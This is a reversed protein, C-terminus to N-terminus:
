RGSFVYQWHDTLPKLLYSLLTRGDTKFFTEAPMGPVLKAGNLRGIEENPVRVGVTYYYQGSQQDKIVDGSIRFM